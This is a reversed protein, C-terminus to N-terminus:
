PGHGPDPPSAPTPAAARRRAGGGRRRRGRDGPAHRPRGGALRPRPPPGVSCAAARCRPVGYQELGLPQRSFARRHGSGDGRADDSLGWSTLAPGTATTTLLRKSATVTPTSSQRGRALSDGSPRASLSLTVDDRRGLRRRAWSRRLRAHREHPRQLLHGPAMLMDRHACGPPPPAPQPRHRRPLRAAPEFLLQRRGAGRRRGAAGERPDASASAASNTTRASTAWTSGPPRQTWRQTVDDGARSTPRGGGATGNCDLWHERVTAFLTRTLRYPRNWGPSLLDGGSHGPRPDGASPCRNRAPRGTGCGGAPVGARAPPRPPKIRLDLREDLLAGPRGAGGCAPTRPQVM